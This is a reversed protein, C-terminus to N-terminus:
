EALSASSAICARRSARMKCSACSFRPLVAREHGVRDGQRTLRKLIQQTKFVKEDLGSQLVSVEIQRTTCYRGDPRLESNQFRIRESAADGVSVPKLAFQDNWEPSRSIYSQKSDDAFSLDRDSRNAVLAFVVVM